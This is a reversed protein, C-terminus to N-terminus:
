KGYGFQENIYKRLKTNWDQVFVDIVERQEDKVIEEEVKVFSAIFLEFATKAESNNDFLSVFRQFFIHSTNITIFCSGLQFSRDFFADATSKAKYSFNVKNKMYSHIDETTPAKVGLEELAERNRAELEDPPTEEKIKDTVGETDSGAEAANIIDTAPPNINGITRSQARTNENEKYIASITNSVIPSLQLWMPLITEDVYDNKDLARLEVHQKNNAVGFAEDLEPEFCIECGWWRHQPKNTSNYFDFQGFDIERGARIVSIGELRLVHKGMPTGGPDKSLATQDYFIDRVKSFKIQVESERTEGTDRHVYKVPLHVVGDPCLSNAYPEFLPETCNINSRVDINGPCEPNGLVYNPCMLLLPDNPMVDFTYQENEIDILKISHSKQSILYRFRKGLEFELRPFLFGITKPSVRDCDRWHVLTGNQTFNYKKQETTYELYKKFRDPITCPEPDNIQVQKGSKVKNIDLFVKHCNEYGNQWSYVDVSPCAYLSSQPLGVGFRGIGKRAARTTFGIGLCACLRELNMGTGNDLFALETVGKRGTNKDPSGKALVFIDNAQAEIANDLIESVASEISQYGTNRLADGMQQIAFIDHPM